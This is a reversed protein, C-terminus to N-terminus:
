VSSSGAGPLLPSPGNVLSLPAGQVPGRGVGWRGVQSARQQDVEGVGQLRM